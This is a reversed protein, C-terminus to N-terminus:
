EKAEKSKMIKIKHSDISFLASVAETIERKIASDQGGECVIVVGTIEPTNENQTVKESSTKLTIMVEADGVGDVKQLLEKLERERAEKYSEQSSTDDEQLTSGTSVTSSVSSGPYALLLLFVGCVIVLVLRMPGAKQIIKRIEEKM